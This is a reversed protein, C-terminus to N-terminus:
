HHRKLRRRMMRRMFKKAVGTRLVGCRYVLYQFLNRRPPRASRRGTSDITSTQNDPDASRILGPEVGITPINEKLLIKGILADSPLWFRKMGKLLLLAAKRTYLYGISVWPLKQPFVPQVVAQECFPQLPYLVGDDTFLKVVEWGHLHHLLENIGEKFFPALLADDEMVVAYEAESDLFTQLAKRHSLVCAIENPLLETTYGRRRARSDYGYDQHELDLSAGELAEVIQIDLEHQAAQELVAKRRIEARPLNIALYLVHPEPM